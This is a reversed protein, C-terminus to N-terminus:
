EGQPVGNKLYKFYDSDPDLLLVDNKSSFTERYSNLSRTFAFFEPDKSYADAYIGTATADGEGRTEEADRYAEAEFIVAQRDADARIGIALEDGRSRIEQAERSRETIMRDYVSSRVDEPLDIRKVRVDIIEIGLDIATSENLDNTLALMLQDREGAVVEALTREGIQDRLGDNIREALLRGATSVEGRTSIYFQGVDIIRWKAYSDVELAKQELTLYRRRPSDETLLRADFKRVTNVWPIMVHLGPEIDNNVLEGFQLMVARETEKVVFLSNGAIVVVLFVFGLAVFNKM